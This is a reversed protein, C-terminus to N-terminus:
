NIYGLSRLQELTEPDVDPGSQTVQRLLDRRAGDFKQSLTQKLAEEVALGTGALNRKEGPDNKLDFLEFFPATGEAAQADNTKAYVLKWDETRVAVQNNSEILVYRPGEGSKGSLVPQLNFGQLSRPAPIDLLGLITPYVDILSVPDPVLRPGLGKRPFRFFLPVRACNEYAFLGHEFFLNNDGFSEGHDATFILLTNEELGLAKLRELFIQIQEDTFRVAGDYRAIYLDPDRENGIRNTAKIQEVPIEEHAEYFKDNMFLRDYPAPPAYVTHPDIYHIWMFFKGDRHNELWKVAERTVRDAKYWSRELMPGKQKRWLEQYTDYGEHYNFYRSLNGNSVFAATLYGQNKLVESFLLNRRPLATAIARGIGTLYCYKGTFLGAFSQNTKTWPAMANKFAVSERALRDLRPTTERPYGYFSLHDARLTDVTILVVNPAERHHLRGQLIIGSAYTGTQFFGVIISVFLLSKWSLLSKIKQSRNWLLALLLPAAVLGLFLWPNMRVWRSTFYVLYAAQGELRASAYKKLGILLAVTLVGWLTEKILLASLNLEKRDRLGFLLSLGVALVLGALFFHAIDGNCLSLSLYPFEAFSLRNDWLLTLSHILGAAFGLLAGLTLNVKLSNWFHNAVTRISM